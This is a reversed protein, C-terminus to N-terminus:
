HYNPQLISDFCYSVYPNIGRYEGFENEQGRYEYEFRIIKSNFITERRKLLRGKEIDVSTM